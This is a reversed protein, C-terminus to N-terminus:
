KSSKRCELMRVCTLCEDPIRAGKRRTALYGFGHSCSFPTEPDTSSEEETEEEKEERAFANKVKELLPSM